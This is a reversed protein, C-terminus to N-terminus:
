PVHKGHPMGLMVNTGAAGVAAGYRGARAAMLGTAVRVGLSLHWARDAGSIDRPNLLVPRLLPTSTAVSTEAFLTSGVRLLTPLSHGLSVTAIQWRTVGKITLHNPPRTTRFPDLLREDEPRSTREGRLGVSWDGYRAFVEGLLTGYGVIRRGRYREDTQAWELLLYRVVSRQPTYRASVSRKAHDLGDPRVFEPSRVFAISGQVELGAIPWLTLRTSRSDGIRRWQPPSTPGLPEDGNFLAAEVTAYATVRVAGVLQVREMVQALHHNAPYKTFPRVMPDDTGFPAFGKGATLTVRLPEGGLSASLMAEHFITHPHRRDIFGEGWIGAVPEGNPMTWRELNVMGVYQLSSARRAGRVAIMPQTLQLETRARGSLAPTVTTALLTAMASLSDRQLAPLGHAAHRAQAGVSALPVWALLLGRARWRMQPLTGGFRRPRLVTPAFFVAAIM